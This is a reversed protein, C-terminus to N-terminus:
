TTPAAEESCDENLEENFVVGWGNEEFVDGWKAKKM